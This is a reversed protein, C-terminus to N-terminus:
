TSPQNEPPTDSATAVRALVSAVADVLNQKVAHWGRSLARVLAAYGDTQLPTTRAFEGRGILQGERGFLRWNGSIVAQGDYRGQFREIYVKLRFDPRATLGPRRVDVRHLGQDLAHYLGETTQTKLPAAWSNNDAEVIRNPGTQYIIGDRRLYPALTIEPLVLIPLKQTTAVTAPQADSAHHPQQLLFLAQTPGSSTACGALACLLVVLFLYRPFLRM